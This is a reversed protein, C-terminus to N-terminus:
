LRPSVQGHEVHFVAFDRQPVAGEPALADRWELSTALSQGPYELLAAVLKQQWDLSLEAEIDDLLFLPYEGISEAVLAAQALAMAVALMKQQGRSVFSRADHEEYRVRLEARHPGSVTYGLQRDRALHEALHEALPQTEDWGPRLELSFRDSGLLRGSWIRAQTQLQQTHVKRLQHLAEGSNALERDWVQIAADSARSRLGANRQSLAREYRRWHEYFSQEVYFLGWDLYRRRYVPADEFVKHLQRDVLVLPLALAQERRTAPQSLRQVLLEGRRFGATWSVPVSDSRERIQLVVSAAAQQEQIAEELKRARFSQGRCCIYVAELLSTKGAANAGAIVNLRPSLAIEAQAFRRLCSVRLREIRM